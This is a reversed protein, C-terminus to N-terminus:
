FFFFDGHRLFLAVFLSPRFFAQERHAAWRGSLVGSICSSSALSPAVPGINFVRSRHTVPRALSPQETPPLRHSPFLFRSSSSCSCRPSSFLFFFIPRGPVVSTPPFNSWSALSKFFPLSFTIDLTWLTSCAFLLLLTRLFRPPLSTFRTAVRSGTNLNVDLGSRSRAEPQGAVAHYTLTSFGSGEGDRWM